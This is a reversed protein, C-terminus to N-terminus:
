LSASNLLFYLLLVLLALALVAIVVTKGRRQPRARIGLGEGAPGKFRAEQTATGCKYCILAKDAIEIGCHRCKM